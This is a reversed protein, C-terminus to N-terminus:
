NGFETEGKESVRPDPPAAVSRRPGMDRLQADICEVKLRIAAGNAFSLIITGSPAAEPAFSVSLLELKQNAEREIQLTRVATVYDFHMGTQIREFAGHLAAQWDFRSLVLAFRQNQQVYVMDAACTESNQVHASIVGLDEVDFAVLKLLEPTGTEPTKTM